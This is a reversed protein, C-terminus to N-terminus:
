INWPFILQIGTVLCLAIWSSVLGCSFLVNQIALTLSCLCAKNLDSFSLMMRVNNHKENNLGIWM